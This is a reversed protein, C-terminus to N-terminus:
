ELSERTTKGQGTQLFHLVEARFRQPQEAHTTHGAEPVNVLTSDPILAHMEENIARFKADLAGCLLLTPMTLEPLRAWLSPQAGTGMGRLSNALGVPNNRLRQEHLRARVEPSQTAFLPLSTWYDAFAPIGQGEIRRALVEDSVIRAEREAATKLGPSASELILRKFRAPYALAIYLALRGGMSYGLLHASPMDLGDLIAILDAAAREMVYREPDDPSDTQGHGILDVTVVRFKPALAEVHPQWNAGSGSFGHLLVLPEGAGVVDVHYHIGNIIM